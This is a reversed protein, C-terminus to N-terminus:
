RPFDMPTRDGIASGVYVRVQGKDEDQDMDISFQGDGTWGEGDRSAEAKGRTYFSDPDDGPSVGFVAVVKANPYLVLLERAAAALAAGTAEPNAPEIEIRGVARPRTVRQFEHEVFAYPAPDISSAETEVADVTGGTERDRGGEDRDQGANGGVVAIVIVVAVV